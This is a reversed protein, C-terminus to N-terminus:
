RATVSVRKGPAGPTSTTLLLQGGAPTTFYAYPLGQGLTAQLRSAWDITVTWDSYAVPVPNAGGLGVLGIALDEYLRDSDFAINHNLPHNPPPAYDYEYQFPAPFRPDLQTHGLDKFLNTPAVSVQTLHTLGLGTQTPMASFPGPHIAFLENNFPDTTL